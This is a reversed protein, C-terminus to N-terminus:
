FNGKFSRSNGSNIKFMFFFETGGQIRTSQQLSSYNFDYSMGMTFDSWDLIVNAILADGLRCHVGVGLNIPNSDGLYQTKARVHYSIYSGFLLEQFKGQRHYFISPMLTLKTQRMGFDGTASFSFRRELREESDSLFSNNPRNLNYASLGIIFSKHNNRSRIGKGGDYRYVVGAGSNIDAFSYRIFHEGSGINNNFGYGDYQSAWDGDEPNLSMQRYGMFIGAGLFNNDTLKIHSAFHLNLGSTQLEPEGVKDNFFNIGGALKWNSNAKQLFVMDASAAFTKFPMQTPDWQKKYNISARLSHEAGAFAPNINLPTYESQSFHIDQSFGNIGMSSILACFLIKYTSKM